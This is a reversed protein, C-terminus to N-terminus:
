VHIESESEPGYQSANNWVKSALTIRVLAFIRATSTRTVKEWSSSPQWRIIHKMFYHQRTDTGLKMHSLKELSCRVNFDDDENTRPNASQRRLFEARGIQWSSRKWSIHSSFLTDSNTHLEWRIATCSGHFIQSTPSKKEAHFSGTWWVSCYM